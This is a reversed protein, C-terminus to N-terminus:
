TAKETLYREPQPSDGSEGADRDRPTNTLLQKSCAPEPHATNGCADTPLERLKITAAAATAAAAINTVPQPLPWAAPPAELPCFDDAAATDNGCAVVYVVNFPM